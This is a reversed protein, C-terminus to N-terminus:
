FFRWVSLRAKFVQSELLQCLIAVFRLGDTGPVVWLWVSEPGFSRQLSLLM